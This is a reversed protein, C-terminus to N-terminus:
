ASICTSAKQENLEKQRNQGGCLEYELAFGVLDPREARVPGVRVLLLLLAVSLVLVPVKSSVSLM